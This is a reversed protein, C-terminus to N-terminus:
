RKIQSAYTGKRWLKEMPGTKFQKIILPSLLMQVAYIFVSILLGQLLNIRHMLGLGYGYFILTLFVSQTIYHTLALRGVKEFKMLFVDMRGNQHLKLLATMYFLCLSVTAVEKAIEGAFIFLYNSEYILSSSTILYLVTASWGIAGGWVFMRHITKKNEALREFFGLKGACYGALFLGLIKPIWFIFSILVMPIEHRLRFSVIQSYSGEQYINIVEQLASANSILVEQDASMQNEAMVQLTMIGAMFITSFLLLGIVWNRLSRISKNRFLLLLFGTLAYSTLIDGYWFLLMHAMGFVLLLLLRRKFLRAANLGKRDAREMFIYFGLGFLFSFMTYFKGTAFIQIVVAVWRNMAEAYNFPNVPFSMLTDNFMQTNVVLVGLLAFGRLMDIERIREQETVPALTSEAKDSLM